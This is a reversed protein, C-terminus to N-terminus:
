KEHWYLSSTSDIRLIDSTSANPGAAFIDCVYYDGMGRKDEVSYYNTTMVDGAEDDNYVLNKNMPHWMKVDQITGRSNGSRFTRVRDYCLDVRATDVPATMIDRWDINQVGKFLTSTQVSTTNGMTNIAQNLWLRGIGASTESVTIYPNTPTDGAQLATFTDGRHKFCIRRWLWPIDSSTSIRLNESLGRMYATTSTRVPTQAVSGVNGNATSLDRGTACWMSFAGVAGQVYYAPSTNPLPSGTAATNTIALMTDRKKRSTTNLISRKSMPRKRIYRRTRVTSRSRRVSRTSRKRTYRPKRRYGRPKRTYAM